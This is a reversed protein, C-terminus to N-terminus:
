PQGAPPTMWQALDGMGGDLLAQRVRQQDAPTRNQSLKFKGELRTITLEFGVIGRRMKQRYDAPLDPAWPTARAREHRDVLADVLADLEVADIVLRVPGSAHVVAYNWTPVSPHEGYWAPSVYAHPGHFVALTHGKSVLDAHPNGRALHGRLRDPAGPTCILDLPVHSVWTEGDAVSILTAFDHARMLAHLRAPEDEAFHAPRYIV